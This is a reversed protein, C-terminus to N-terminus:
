PYLGRMLKEQGIREVGLALAGTRMDKKLSQAHYYTTIFARRILQQLRSDVEEPSWFYMQMDQVWEFYSVIVGGSNCLIDPIVFVDEHHERLYKDAETTCPGNAGEALIRCKLNRAINGDIQMELAAPVVIDCQVTFFEERSVKDKGIDEFGQLTRHTEMHQILDPVHFGTGPRLYHGSADAVGIVKTGRAYLQAATTSGVNGFGQVIATANHLNIQTFKAAEEICYVVGNGTAAKRGATGYVSVPKGTVIRPCNTGVNMSYTDFIWAMMQENTGVDPAMVDIDPGIFPSIEQTFRRTLRELEGMSMQSPDCNIGGKAGSFPLNTLACKWTMLMALAAVEGVDVLPSYRLGGKGPGATLSHQVRTALFMRTSGDDMHVPVSVTITRKPIKLREIVGDPLNVLPAVSMLQDVAAQYFPSQMFLM